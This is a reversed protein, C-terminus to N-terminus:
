NFPNLSEKVITRPYNLRLIQVGVNPGSVQLTLEKKPLNYFTMACPFSSSDQKVRDLSLDDVKFFGDFSTDLGGESKLGTDIFFNGDM